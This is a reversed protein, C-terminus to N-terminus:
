RSTINLKFTQYACTHLQMSHYKAYMCKTNHKTVLQQMNQPWVCKNYIASTLLNYICSELYGCLFYVLIMTCM